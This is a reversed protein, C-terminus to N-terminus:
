DDNTKEQKHAGAAIADAEYSLDAMTSPMNNRLWSVIQAVEALAADREATLATVRDLIARADDADMCTMGGGTQGAMTDRLREIADPATTETTM